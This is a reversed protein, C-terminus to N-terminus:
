QATGIQGILEDMRAKAKGVFRLAKIADLNSQDGGVEILGVM